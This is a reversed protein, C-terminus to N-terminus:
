REVIVNEEDDLIKYRISHTQEYVDQPIKEYVINTETIQLSSNYLVNGEEDELTYNVTEANPYNFVGGWVAGISSRGVSTVRIIEYEKSLDIGQAHEGTGSDYNYRSNEKTYTNLSLMPQGTFDENLFLVIQDDDDQFLIEVNESGNKEIADLLTPSSCGGLSFFLIIFLPYFLKM